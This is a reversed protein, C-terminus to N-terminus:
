SDRTNDRLSRITAVFDDVDDEDPWFDAILSRVDTVPGVGQEAALDDIDHDRYFDASKAANEPRHAAYYEDLAAQM